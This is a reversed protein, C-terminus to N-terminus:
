TQMHHLQLIGHAAKITLYMHSPEYVGGLGCRGLVGELINTTIFCKKKIITLALTVDPEM